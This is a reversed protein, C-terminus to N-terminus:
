FYAWLPNSLDFLLRIAMAICVLVLLPRIIRAGNRIAVHAGIYAGVLQALGDLGIVLVIKATFAFILLAAM